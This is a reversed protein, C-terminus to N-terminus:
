AVTERGVQELLLHINTHDLHQKAVLLKLRCREVSMNGGLDQALHDTWQLGRGCGCRLPAHFTGGELDRIDEAGVPRSQALLLTAVQAKALQLDHRGDFLATTGGEAAMRQTTRRAGLRLDGVVRAAVPVARLALATGGPAPEFCTLGIQQGNRIVV